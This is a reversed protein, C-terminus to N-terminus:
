SHIRKTLSQLIRALSNSSYLSWPKCAFNLSAMFSAMLARYIKATNSVFCYTLLMPVTRGWTATSFFYSEPDDTVDIADEARFPLCVPLITDSFEIFQDSINNLFRSKNVFYFAGLEIYMYQGFYQDM